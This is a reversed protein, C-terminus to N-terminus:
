NGYIMQTNTYYFLLRCCVNVEGVTKRLGEITEKIANLKGKFEDKIQFKYNAGDDKWEGEWEKVSRNRINKGNDERNQGTSSRESDKQYNMIWPDNIQTGLGSKM